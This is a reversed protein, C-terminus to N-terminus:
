MSLCAARNRAESISAPTSYWDRTHSFRTEALGGRSRTRREGVGHSVASLVGWAQAWPQTPPHALTMWGTRPGTLSAFCRGMESAKFSWAQRSATNLTIDPSLGGSARLLLFLGASQQM